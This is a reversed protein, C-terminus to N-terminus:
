LAGANIVVVRRNESGLPDRPNALEAFGKGVAKLRDPSVSMEKVLYEKVVEARQKSLEENYVSTGARDTHGEIVFVKEEKLGQNLANGLNRLTETSRPDLEASGFKFMITNLVMSPQVIAASATRRSVPSQRHQARRTPQSQREQSPYSPVNAQMVGPNVGQPVPSTGFSPLGRTKLGHEIQAQTPAGTSTQASVGTTILAIGGALAGLFFALRQKM